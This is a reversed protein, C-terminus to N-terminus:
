PKLYALRAEAKMYYEVAEYDKVNELLDKTKQLGAIAARLDGVSEYIVAGRYLSKAEAIIKVYLRERAV